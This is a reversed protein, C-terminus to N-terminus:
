AGVIEPETEMSNRNDDPKIVVFKYTPEQINNVETNVVIDRETYGRQKGRNTNGLVFKIAWDEDANLKKILKAEAIDVVVEREEYVYKWMEPNANLWRQLGSRSFGLRKSIISLIGGSDKVHKLFRAPRIRGTM